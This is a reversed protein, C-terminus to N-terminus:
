AYHSSLRWMADVGEFHHLEWEPGLTGAAQALAIFRRANSKSSFNGVILTENAANRFHARVRVGHGNVEDALQLGQVLQIDSM